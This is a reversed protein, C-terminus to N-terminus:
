VYNWIAAYHWKSTITTQVATRV